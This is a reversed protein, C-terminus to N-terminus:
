EKRMKKSLIDTERAGIDAADDAFAPRAGHQEVSFDYFGTKMEGSLRIATFDRGDFTQCLVAFEIRDLLRKDLM